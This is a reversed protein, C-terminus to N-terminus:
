FQFHFLCFFTFFFFHLLLLFLCFTVFSYFAFTAKSRKRAIRSLTYNKAIFFTINSITKSSVFCLSEISPYKLFTQIISNRTLFGESFPYLRVSLYLNVPFWRATTADSIVILACEFASQFRIAHKLIFKVNSQRLKVGSKKKDVWRRGNKGVHNGNKAQGNMVCMLPSYDKKLCM